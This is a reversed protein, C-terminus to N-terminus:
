QVKNQFYYKLADKNITEGLKIKYEVKDKVQIDTLFEMHVINTKDGKIMTNEIWYNMEGSLYPFISLCKIDSLPYEYRKVYSTAM